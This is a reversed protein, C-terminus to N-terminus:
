NKEDSIIFENYEESSLGLTDKAKIKIRLLGNTNVSDITKEFETGYRYIKDASSNSELNSEIAISRLADHIKIAKKTKGSNTVFEFTIISDTFAISIILMAVMSEVLTTAKLKM